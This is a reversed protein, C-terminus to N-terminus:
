KSKLIDRIESLLNEERSPAVPAAESIAQKRKLRNLAQVLMFIALAVLTFDIASQLFKGYNLSVGPNIIRGTADLIQHKMTIRLDTFDVGGILLGLPPMLVDTVLSSIIRGFASGMIIGIALDIVNGKMAFDRFEKLVKM